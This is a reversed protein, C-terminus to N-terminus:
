SQKWHGRKNTYKCRKAHKNCMIYKGYNRASCLVLLLYSIQLYFVVADLV